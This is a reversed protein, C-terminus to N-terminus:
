GTLSPDEELIFKLIRCGSGFDVQFNQIQGLVSMFIRLKPCIFGSNPGQDAGFIGGFCFYSGVVVGVLMGATKKPPTWDVQTHVM